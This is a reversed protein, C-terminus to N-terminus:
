WLKLWKNASGIKWRLVSITLRSELTHEFPDRGCPLFIVVFNDLLSALNNRRQSFRLRRCRRFAFDVRLNQVISVLLDLPTVIVFFAAKAIRRFERTGHREIEQRSKVRAIWLAFGAFLREFHSKEREAFHSGTPHMIMDTASKMAVRDITVPVHRMEFLHKVILRLKSDSIEVCK